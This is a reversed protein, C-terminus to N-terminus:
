LFSRIGFVILRVTVGWVADPAWGHRIRRLRCPGARHRTRRQPDQRRGYVASRRPTQGLHSRAGGLAAVFWVAARGLMGNALLHALAWLKVAVLMPHKAWRKLRGPLYTAFLLPFVPLMLLGALHRLGVPPVYLLSPELRAASYGGIMLVFGLLAVLSYLGKWTGAGLRAVMADRWPRAVISVSHIGLFIVLGVVLQIM